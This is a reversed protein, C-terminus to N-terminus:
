SKQKMIRKQTIHTQSVFLNNLESNFHICLSTTLVSKILITEAQINLEFDSDFLIQKITNTIDVKECVGSSLQLEFFNNDIGVTEKNILSKELLNRRKLVVILRLINAKKVFEDDSIEYLFNLM